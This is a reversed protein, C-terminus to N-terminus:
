KYGRAQAIGARLAQVITTKKVSRIEKISQIQALYIMSERGAHGGLVNDLALGKACFEEKGKKVKSHLLYNSKISSKYSPRKSFYEYPPSQLLAGKSSPSSVHILPSPPSSGHLSSHAKFLFFSGCAGM